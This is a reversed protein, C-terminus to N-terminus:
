DEPRMHPFLLVDRISPSNTFFMVLRDIGVGLGATPPMGYELARVYDADYFMAEDDGGTRARWRRASARPRTRRLRQARLLRERARPRRRLVRLPRHHVSGCRQPAVAALSRGSVRLRVDSRAPTSSPRRSSSSRCSARAMTRAQRRHGLQTATAERLYSSTACSRASSARISHELLDRSRSAGSRRPRSRVGRGPVRRAAHRRVADACARACRARDLGHPRPLRRLGPVARADHVRPQAADVLGRQPFQPQDRVRARLRRGGAAQPVAGARHAPVHGPRARQSADHVAAGGRRGPDGADDADRSRPLRACRPLRAPLARDRTRTRFM